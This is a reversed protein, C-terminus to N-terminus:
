LCKTATKGRENDAATKIMMKIPILIEEPIVSLDDIVSRFQLYKSIDVLEKIETGTILYEV